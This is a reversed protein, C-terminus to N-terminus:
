TLLMAFFIECVIINQDAAVAMSNPFLVGSFRAIFINILLVRMQYNIGKSYFLAVICVGYLITTPIDVIFLIINISSSVTNLVDEFSTSNNFSM